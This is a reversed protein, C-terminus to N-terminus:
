LLPFSSLIFVERLRATTFSKRRKGIRLLFIGHIFGMFYMMIMPSVIFLFLIKTLLLFVHLINKLILDHSPTHLTSNGMHQIEMGSDNVTHVKDNGAYKDRISLKDLNSTIHDTAGSNAYWNM